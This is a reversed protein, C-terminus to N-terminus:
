LRSYLVMLRDITPDHPSEELFYDILWQVKAAATTRWYHGREVHTLTYNAFRCIADVVERRLAIVPWPASNFRFIADSAQVYLDSAILMTCTDM